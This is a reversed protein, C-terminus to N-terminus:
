VNKSFEGDARLRAFSDQALKARQWFRFVHNSAIKVMKLVFQETHIKSYLNKTKCSGLTTRGASFNCMEFFTKGRAIDIFLHKVKAYVRIHAMFVSADELHGAM